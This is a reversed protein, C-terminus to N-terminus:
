VITRVAEVALAEVCLHGMFGGGIIGIIGGVVGFQPFDNTDNGNLTAIAVGIVAGGFAGLLTAGMFTSIVQCSISGHVHSLEINSLERM